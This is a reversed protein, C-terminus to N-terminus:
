RADASRTGAPVRDRGRRANRPRQPPVPRVLRVALKEAAERTIDRTSAGSFSSPIYVAPLLEVGADSPVARARGALGINALSAAFGPLGGAAFVAARKGEALSGPRRGGRALSMGAYSGLFRGLMATASGSTTLKAPAGVVIADAMAMVKAAHNLLGDRKTCRGTDACGGCKPCAYSLVDYLRLRIVEAGAAEASSAAVDVAYSSPGGNIPSADIAILRMDVELRPTELQQHM